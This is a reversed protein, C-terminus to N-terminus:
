ITSNGMLDQIMKAVTDKGAGAVGHIGVLKPFNENFSNFLTIIQTNLEDLTGNNDLVHDFKHDKLANESLHKTSRGDKKYESVHEIKREVKLLFGGLEHMKKYENPFRLDPDLTMCFIDAERDQADLTKYENEWLDVWTDNDILNRFIDTGLYQLAQGITIYEGDVLSLENWRQITKSVQEDSIKTKAQSYKELFARQFTVHQDRTQFSCPWNKPLKKAKGEETSSETVKVGCLDDLALRLFTAFRIIRTKM